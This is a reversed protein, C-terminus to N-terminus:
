LRKAEKEAAKLASILDPVNAAGVLQKIIKTAAPSAAQVAPVSSPAPQRASTPAGRKVPLGLLWRADVDLVRCLEAIDDGRPVTAGREWNSVSQPNTRLAAALQPQTLQKRKRAEAVRQKFPGVFSNSPPRGPM